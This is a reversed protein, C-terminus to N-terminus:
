GRCPAYLYNVGDKISVRTDLGFVRHNGGAVLGLLNPNGGWTETSLRKTANNTNEAGTTAEGRLIKVRECLLLQATDYADNAQHTSSSDWIQKTNSAFTGYSQRSEFYSGIIYLTRTM